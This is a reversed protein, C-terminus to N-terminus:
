HLAAVFCFLIRATLLMDTQLHEGAEYIVKPIFNTKRGNEKCCVQLSAAAAAALDSINHRFSLLPLVLTNGDLM